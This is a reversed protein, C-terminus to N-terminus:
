KQYLQECTLQFSWNSGNLDVVDGKDNILKVSLRSINVPGFYVREQKELSGGDAVYISGASTPKLPLMAFVDKAFLGENFNNKVKNQEAVIQQTSYVQNQTLGQQGELTQEVVNTVLNCTRASRRSIYKPLTVSTDRKSITVLGDNLRNQNFDDLIIMFYNYSSINVVTDGVLTVLVNTTANGENTETFSYLSGTSELTDINQFFTEDEIGLINSSTFDYEALSQFGLIYGLTTDIKANRYSNTTSTCKSFSYIDFLVLKYDKTTYIKNINYYSTLRNDSSITFLSGNTLTNKTMQTNIEQVLSEANYDGDSIEIVIDNFNSYLPYNNPDIYVGGLPDEIPRFTITAKRLNTDTLSQSSIDDLQSHQSLETFVNELLSTLQPVSGALNPREIIWKSNPTNINKKRDFNIEWKFYYESKIRVLSISPSKLKDISQLTTNITDTWDSWTKNEGVPLNFTIVNIEQSIGTQYTTSEETPMYQVLRFIGREEGEGGISFVDDGKFQISVKNYITTLSQTLNSVGLLSSIGSSFSIEYSYENYVKQIDFSLTAKLNTSDYEIRTNGFSVDTYVEPLRLLQTNVANTLEVLTYNGPAIEIKYEHNVNSIAITNNEREIITQPKLFFFSSGYTNSITYWTVPIQVSYLKIKVINKLTESLNVTFETPSTYELDRYKSDISVTRMITETKIPNQEGNPYEMEQIKVVEDENTKNLGGKKEERVISGNVMKWKLGKNSTKNNPEEKNIRQELKTKDEEVKEQDFNDEELEELKKVNFFREYISKYFDFLKKGLSTRIYMHRQLIQIIKAELESDTPNPNLQLINYLEDDTYNDVNYADEMKRAPIINTYVKGSM